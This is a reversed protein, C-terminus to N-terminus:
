KVPFLITHNRENVKITQFDIGKERLGEVFSEFTPAALKQYTKSSVNGRFKVEIGGWAYLASMGNTTKQRVKGNELMKHEVQFTPLKKEKVIKEFLRHVEDNKWHKTNEESQKM